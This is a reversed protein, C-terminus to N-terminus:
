PYRNTIIAYCLVESVPMNKQIIPKTIKTIQVFINVRNEPVRHKTLLILRFCNRPSSYINFLRLTDGYFLAVRILIIVLSGTQSM